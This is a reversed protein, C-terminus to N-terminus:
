FLLIGAQECCVCPSAKLCVTKTPTSKYTQIPRVTERYYKFLTVFRAENIQSPDDPDNEVLEGGRAEGETQPRIQHHRLHNWLNKTNGSSIEANGCKHCKGSTKSVKRFYQWVDSRTRIAPAM